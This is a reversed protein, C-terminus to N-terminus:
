EGWFTCELRIKRPVEYKKLLIPGCSNSGIGSQYADICLVTSECPQLEFNHKRRTLEEQTYLSTNFCFSKGTSIWNLNGDSLRVYSCDFHSGNEQPKIYNEMQRKVTSHYLYRFSSRHKDIYSEHPGFGFYSLKDFHKPLFMRLGFRPLIPVDKKQVALLDVHITGNESITWCATGKLFVAVSDAAISFETKLICAGENQVIQTQYTYVKARNYGYAEWQRRVKRDNDTPARWINIQMPNKLISQNRVVIEDFCASTQNYMYRFNYGSIIIYRETESIQLKADCRKMPTSVIYDQYGIEDEGVLTGAKVFESDKIAYQYFHIAFPEQLGEPLSIFFKKTEHPAIRILEDPVCSMYVEEGNQRVAYFIRIADNLMTFDLTNWLEIEGRFLNFNTVRAPRLVNKLELLGTHPRRDPYVLGDICFNDDHLEEGFDGGYFYRQKGEKTLEINYAHDCWEWVFGGCHGEHRYFCQFYDELDGPSNGMAHCYECLVYPKGVASEKFYNDIDEISVYM